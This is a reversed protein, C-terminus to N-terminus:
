VRETAIGIRLTQFCLGFLLVVVVVPGLEPVSKVGSSEPESQQATKAPEVLLEIRSGTALIAVRAFDFARSAKAVGGVFRFNALCLEPV